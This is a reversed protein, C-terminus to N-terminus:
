AAFLEVTAAVGPVRSLRADCTVLPADLAEALALYVADYSSVTHRLEWAREVLAQHPYRNLPLDALDRRADDARDTSLERRHELRRLASVVEVDVLHPAHIDGDALLTAVLAPAGSPATLVQVIASADVVKM